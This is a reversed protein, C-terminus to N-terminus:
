LYDEVLWGCKNVTVRYYRGTMIRFDTTYYPKFAGSPIQEVFNKMNEFLQKTEADPNEPSLLELTYTIRSSKSKSKEYLLVSFTKEPKTVNSSYNIGIMSGLLRAGARVSSHWEGDLIIRSCQAYSFFDAYNSHYITRGLLNADQYIVMYPLPSVVFGMYHRPSRLTVIEGQLWKKNANNLKALLDEQPMGKQNLLQVLRFRGAWSWVGRCEAIKKQSHDRLPSILMVSEGLPCYRVSDFGTYAWKSVSVNKFKYFADKMEQVSVSDKFHNRNLLVFDTSSRQCYVEWKENFNGFLLLNEDKYQGFASSVSLSTLLIMM